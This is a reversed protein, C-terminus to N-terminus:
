DTIWGDEILFPKIDDWEAPKGTEYHKGQRRLEIAKRGHNNIRLNPLGIQLSNIDDNILGYGRRVDILSMCGRFALWEEDTPIFWGNDNYARELLEWEHAELYRTTIRNPYIDDM